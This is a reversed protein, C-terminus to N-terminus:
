GYAFRKFLNKGLKIEITYSYKGIIYIEIVQKNYNTLTEKITADLTILLVM